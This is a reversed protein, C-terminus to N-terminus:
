QQGDKAQKAKYDARKGKFLLYQNLQCELAGNILKIKKTPRLGIHKLARLESSIIWAEGGSYNFKLTQGIRQYFATVQDQQLRKNYPPNIVIFPPDAKTWESQFFDQRKVSITDELFASAINERAKDLVSSDKDSGTISVKNDTVKDAETKFVYDWLQADYNVWNQFGFRRKMGPPINHAIMAAEILLTGSGCMPDYFPQQGHWGSLKIIGAALVENLPAPGTAVRYGRKFLPEGSSDLSVSCKNGNIYLNIKVDPNQTDVNPRRGFKETFYDAIADKAKLGIYQSHTFIKSRPITTNIMFSKDVSLIDEWQIKKLQKYFNQEDRAWFQAVDVLISLALRSCLNLRYLGAKDTEFQVARNLIQINQGKLEGIEAALINELGYLTKAVCKINRIPMNM